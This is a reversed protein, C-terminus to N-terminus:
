TRQSAHQGAGVATHRQSAGGRPSPDAARLAGGTREGLGPHQRGLSCWLGGHGPNIAAIRIKLNPFHPLPFLLHLLFLLLLLCQTLLSVKVWCFPDWCASAHRPSSCTQIQPFPLHNQTVPCSSVTMMLAASMCCLLHFVCSSHPAHTAKFPALALLIGFYSLSLSVNEGCHSTDSVLTLYALHWGPWMVSTSIQIGRQTKKKAVFSQQSFPFMILWHCFLPEQKQVLPFFPHWWGSHVALMSSHHQCPIHALWACPRFANLCVLMPAPVIGVRAFSGVDMRVAHDPTVGM